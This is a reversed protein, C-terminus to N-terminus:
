VPAASVSAHRWDRDYMGLSQPRSFTCDKNKRPMEVKDELLATHLITVSAHLEISVLLCGFITAAEARYQKKNGRSLMHKFLDEVEDLMDDLRKRLMGFSDQDMLGEVIDEVTITAWLFIGQTREAIGEILRNIGDRGQELFM